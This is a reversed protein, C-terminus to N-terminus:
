TLCVHDKCHTNLKGPPDPSIDKFLGPAPFSSTDAHAELSIYLDPVCVRLIWNGTLM